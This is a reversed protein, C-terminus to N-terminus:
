LCIFNRFYNIFSLLLRKTSQYLLFCPQKKWWSGPPHWQVAEIVLTEGGGYAEATNATMDEKEQWGRCTTRLGLDSNIWLTQRESWMTNVNLVDVGQSSGDTWESGSNSESMDAQDQGCIQFGQPLASARANMQQLKHRAKLRPDCTFLCVNQRITQNSARHHRVIILLESRRGWM